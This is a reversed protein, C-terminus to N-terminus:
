QKEFRLNKLLDTNMSMAVKNNVDRKFEVM